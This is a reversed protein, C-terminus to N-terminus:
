DELSWAKFCHFLLPGPVLERLDQNNGWRICLDREPSASHGQGSPMEGLLNEWTADCPVDPDGAEAPHTTPPFVHLEEPFLNSLGTPVLTVAPLRALHRGALHAWQRGREGAMSDLTPQIPADIASAPSCGCTHSLFPLHWVPCLWSGVSAQLLLDYGNADGAGSTTAERSVKM